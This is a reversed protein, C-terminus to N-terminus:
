SRRFLRSLLGSREGGPTEPEPANASLYRGADEHDPKLELVKRYYTVARKPMGKQAYIEALFAWADVSKPDERTADLLM